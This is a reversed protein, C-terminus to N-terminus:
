SGCCCALAAGSLSMTTGKHVKSVETPPFSPQKCVGTSKQRESGALDIMNLRAQRLIPLGDKEEQMRSLRFQPPPNNTQLPQTYKGM